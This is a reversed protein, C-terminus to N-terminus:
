YESKLLSFVASDEYIGDKLYHNRLLGEQIFGFKTLLKFSPINELSLLAEIRLLNMTEFGYSIIPKLAETMLGKNKYDDSILGYGIEARNHDTYWTHYGCWGIVLQTKKDILQFYVFTKNYTALGKKHKVQEKKLDELSTLGLFHLQEKESLTKYIHDYVEPTLKRLLLRKTNLTTLQM